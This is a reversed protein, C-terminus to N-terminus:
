VNITKHLEINSPCHKELHEVYQFNLTLVYWYTIHIKFLFFSVSWRGVKYAQTMNTGNIFHKSHALCWGANNLYMRRIKM